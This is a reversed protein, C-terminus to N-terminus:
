EEPRDPQPQEQFIVKRNVVLYLAPIVLLSILMSLSMGGITSIALPQLMESGEGIALATKQHQEQLRFSFKQARNLCDKLSLYRGDQPFLSPSYVFFVFLIFLFRKVPRVGEPISKDSNNM